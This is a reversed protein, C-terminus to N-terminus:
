LQTTTPHTRERRVTEGYFRSDPTPTRALEKTYAPGAIPHSFAQGSTFGDFDKVGQGSEASYAM